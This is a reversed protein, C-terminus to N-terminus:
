PSKATTSHVQRNMSLMAEPLALWWETSEMETMWALLKSKLLVNAQEILGNNQPTQPKSHVVPVGHHKVSCDCAGKFETRNDCQLIGKIGFLGIFEGFHLIVDEIEKTEMPYAGSFKSCHDRVHLCWKFRQGLHRCDILDIQLCEWLEKVFILELPAVTKGSRTKACTACHELLFDVEMKLIGYYKRDIDAWTKDRGTHMLENAHDKVIQDFVEQERPCFWPLKYKGEPQRYLQGNIVQNHQGAAYRARKQDITEAPHKPNDM